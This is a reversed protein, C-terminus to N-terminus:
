GFIIINLLIEIRLTTRENVMNDVMLVVLYSIIHMCSIEADVSEINECGREILTSCDMHMGSQCLRGM